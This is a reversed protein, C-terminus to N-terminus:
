RNLTEIAREMVRKRKRARERERDDKKGKFVCTLGLEWGFVWPGTTNWKSFAADM